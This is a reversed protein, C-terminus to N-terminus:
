DWLAHGVADEFCIPEVDQVIKAMYAYHRAVYGDYILRQVPRREKTSRRPGPDTRPTRNTGNARRV